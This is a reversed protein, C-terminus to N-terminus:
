GRVRIVVLAGCRLCGDLRYLWLGPLELGLVLFGDRFGM